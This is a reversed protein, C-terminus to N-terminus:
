NMQVVSRPMCRLRPARSWVSRQTGAQLARFNRQPRGWGSSHARLDPLHLSPLPSNLIFHSRHLFSLQLASSFCIPFLQPRQHPVPLQAPSAGHQEIGRFAGARGCPAPPLLPRLHALLGGEWLQRCNGAVLRVVHIHQQPVEGGKPKFFYVM